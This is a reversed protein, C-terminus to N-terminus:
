KLLDDLYGFKLVRPSLVGVNTHTESIPTSKVLLGELDRLDFARRGGGIITHHNNTSMLIPGYYGVKLAQRRVRFRMLVLM